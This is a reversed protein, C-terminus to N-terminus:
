FIRWAADSIAMLSVAGSDSEIEISAVGDISDGSGAAIILKNSGVLPAKVHVVDGAAPAAPLTWTRNATLDASGYNFGEALTADADGVATVVAGDLSLVGSALTLGAGAVTSKLRLGGAVVEMSADGDGSNLRLDASFAGGAFSMDMSNTDSVSLHGRVGAAADGHAITDLVSGSFESEDISFVGASYDIMAEPAVSLHARVEAASPGTYTIVGSSANYALSGDGGADTVSIHSRIGAAADAHAIVDLASGSFETHKIKYVGASVELMEGATMHARVESASPGTYTFVGTSSNYAFAGDGGADVASVAARARTDTFYLNTGEALDATNKTALADAWSASYESAKIKYVGASVELMEGATMHARVESASPGTYTLVGTSANYAMSGDGGADTVSIKARIGAAADAHAIVDLASGSFESEKIKYVGSSVELMEGATMHARVESASPGTYTLVGTSANYAMSGDGGADTVSVMGRVSSTLLNENMTWAGTSSNYELFRDAEMSIAARARTNTFYLNSSGESVDDTDALELSTAPNQLQGDLTSASLNRAADIVVTSGVKLKGASIIDIDGEQKLAGSLIADGLQFKYAM